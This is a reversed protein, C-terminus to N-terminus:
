NENREGNGVAEEDNPSIIDREYTSSDEDKKAKDEQDVKGM